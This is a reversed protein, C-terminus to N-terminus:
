KTLMPPISSPLGLKRWIRRPIRWRLFGALKDFKSRVRRVGKHVAPADACFSVICKEPALGPPFICPGKGGALFICDATHLTENELCAPIHDGLGPCLALAYILDLQTIIDDPQINRCCLGRCQEHCYRFADRGERGLRDEAERIERCIGRLTELEDRDLRDLIRKAKRYKYALSM